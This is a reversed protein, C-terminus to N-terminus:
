DRDKRSMYAMIGKAIVEAMRQRIAPDHLRREEESNTIFGCEVLAAPMKTGRLVAYNAEKGGRNVWDRFAKSIEALIADRLRAGERSGPFSFVEFGKAAPPGSNLHISVFVDANLRNAFDCRGKLSSFQNPQRTLYVTHGALLLIDRMRLAIDYALDDEETYLMDGEAPQM